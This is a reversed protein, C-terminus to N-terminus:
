WLRCRRRGIARRVGLRECAALFARATYEALPARNLTAARGAFVKRLHYAVTAPSIFLQAAIASRAAASIV